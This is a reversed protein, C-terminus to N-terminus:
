DIALLVGTGTDEVPFVGSPGGLVHEHSIAPKPARSLTLLLLSM